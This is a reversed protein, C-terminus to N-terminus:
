LTGDLKAGVTRLVPRANLDDYPKPAGTGFKGQLEPTVGAYDVLPKRSDFRSADVWQGHVGDHDRFPLEIVAVPGANIDAADLIALSGYGTKQDQCRTFLYGDGEPSDASRPVFCPEGVTTHEGAKWVLPARFAHNYPKGTYRDDCRALEGPIDSLITPLELETSKSNPDIKFRVFKGVPPVDAKGADVEPHMSPFARLSDNNHMFADIYIIGDEEFHNCLHGWYHGKLSEFWRAQEPKPNRRPLVGFRNRLYANKRFHTGAEKKKHELGMEHTAMVYVVYNVTKILNIIRSIM